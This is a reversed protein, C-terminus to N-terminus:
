DSLLQCFALMTDAELREMGYLYDLNGTFNYRCCMWDESSSGDKDSVSCTLIPTPPLVNHLVGNTYVTGQTNSAMHSFLGMNYFRLAYSYSVCVTVAEVGVGLGVERLM